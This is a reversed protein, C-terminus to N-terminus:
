GTAALEDRSLGLDWIANLGLLAAAADSSGGGLGAGMPIAKRLEIAAGQEVRHQTRLADAVRLVLNEPTELERLSCRLSVGDDDVRAIRLRDHLRITQFVSRIEHYGDPRRGRIDLSLNIKAPALLEISHPVSQPV